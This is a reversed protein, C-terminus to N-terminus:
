YKRWLNNQILSEKRKEFDECDKPSTYIKKYHSSGLFVVQDSRLYLDGANVGWACVEDLYNYSDTNRIRSQILFEHNDNKIGYYVMPEPYNSPTICVEVIKEESRSLEKLNQPIFYKMEEM